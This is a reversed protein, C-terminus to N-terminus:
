LYFPTLITLFLWNFSISVFNFMVSHNATLSLTLPECNWTVNGSHRHDSQAKLDTVKPNLILNKSYMGADDTDTLDEPYASQSEAFIKIRLSVLSRNKTTYLVKPVIVKGKISIGEVILMPPPMEYVLCYMPPCLNVLVQVQVSASFAASLLGVVDRQRCHRWTLISSRPVLSISTTRISPCPALSKSIEKNRSLLSVQALLPLSPQGLIYCCSLRSASDPNLQFCVPLNSLTHRHVSHPTFQQHSCQSSILYRGHSTNMENVAETGDWGM